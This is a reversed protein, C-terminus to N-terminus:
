RPGHQRQAWTTELFKYRGGKKKDLFTREFMGPWNIACLALTTNRCGDPSHM